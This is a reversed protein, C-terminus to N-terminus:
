WQYVATNHENPDCEMNYPIKTLGSYFELPFLGSKEIISWTSPHNEGDNFCRGSVILRHTINKFDEIYSLLDKELIHQLVLSCFIADFKMKRVANWDSCFHANGILKNPYKLDRYESTRKIMNEHDYGWINWNRAYLAIGFTNRGIGCGFDLITLQKTVDGFMPIFSLDPSFDSITRGTLIYDAVEDIDGNAIIDWGNHSFTNNV